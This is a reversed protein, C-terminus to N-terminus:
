GLLRMKPPRSLVSRNLLRELLDRSVPKNYHDNMGASLCETRNDLSTIAIIPVPELGKQRERRRIQRTAEIGSVGPLQVDMLVLDFFEAIEVAEEGTIVAYCNIGLSNLQWQMIERIVPSDEVVLIRSLM